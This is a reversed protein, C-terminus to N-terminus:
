DEPSDLTERAGRADLYLSGTNRKADLADEGGPQNGLDTDAAQTALQNTQDPTLRRIAGSVRVTQGPKIARVRADPATVWVSEGQQSLVFALSDLPNARGTLTVKKDLELGDRLAGAM